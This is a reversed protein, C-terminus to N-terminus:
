FWLRLDDCLMDIKGASMPGADRSVTCKRKWKVWGRRSRSGWFDPSSKLSESIEGEKTGKPKRSGKASHPGRNAEAMAAFLFARCRM